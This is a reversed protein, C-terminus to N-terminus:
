LKIGQVSVVGKRSSGGTGYITFGTITNGYAGHYDGSSQETYNNPDGSIRRTLVSLSRVAPRNISTNPISILAIGQSDFENGNGALWIGTSTQGGYSNNSASSPNAGSSIWESTTGYLATSIVGSSNNFRLYTQFWNPNHDCWWTLLYQEYKTPDHTFSISSTNSNWEVKSILELGSISIGTDGNITVPM